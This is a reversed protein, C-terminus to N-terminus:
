QTAKVELSILGIGLLRTDEGLNLSQPSVADPLTLVVDVAGDADFVSPALIVTVPETVRGFEFSYTGFRTGGASIEVRQHRYSETLFGGMTLTLAVASQPAGDKLKIKLIAKKGDSWVGSPGPQSWGEALYSPKVPTNPKIAIGLSFLSNTDSACVYDVLTANSYSDSAVKCDDRKALYSDQLVLAYLAGSYNGTIMFQTAENVPIGFDVVNIIHNLDTQLSVSPVLGNALSITTGYIDNHGKSAVIHAAYNDYALFPRLDYSQATYYLRFCICLALISAVAAKMPLNMRYGCVFRIAFLNVLCGVSAALITCIDFSYKKLTYPSGIHLIYFSYTQAAFVVLIAFSLSVIFISFRFMPRIKIVLILLSSILILASFLFLNLISIEPNFVGNNFSVSKM